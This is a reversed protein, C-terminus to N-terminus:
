KADTSKNESITMSSNIMIQSTEAGYLERNLGSPTSESPAFVPPAFVPPAFESSFMSPKSQDSINFEHTIKYDNEESTNSENKISSSKDPIDPPNDTHNPKLHKSQYILFAADIIIILFLYYKYEEISSTIIIDKIIFFSLLYCACGIMFQTCFSPYHKHIFTHTILFFM